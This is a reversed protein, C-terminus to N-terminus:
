LIFQLRVAAPKEQLLLAKATLNMIHGLVVTPFMRFHLFLCLCAWNGGGFTDIIPTTESRWTTLPSLSLDPINYVHLNNWM